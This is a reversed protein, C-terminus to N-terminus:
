VLDNGSGSVPGDLCYGCNRCFRDKEAFKRLGCNPCFTGAIKQRRRENEEEVRRLFNPDQMQEPGAYVCMMPMESERLPKLFTGRQVPAGYVMKMTVEDPNPRVPRNRNVDASQGEAEWKEPGAYVDKMETEEEADNRHGSARNPYREKWKDFM